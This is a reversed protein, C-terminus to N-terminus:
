AVIRGLKGRVITPQKKERKPLGKTSIIRSGRPVTVQIRNKKRGEGRKKRVAGIGKEKRQEQLVAGV